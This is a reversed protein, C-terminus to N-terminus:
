SFLLSAFSFLSSLLSLSLSSFSFFFPFLCFFSMCLLPPGSYRLNQNTHRILNSYTVSANSPMSYTGHHANQKQPGVLFHNTAARTNHTHNIGLPTFMNIFIQLNEKWLSNRVFLPYKYSIFISIKLINNEKFLNNSPWTHPQFNM